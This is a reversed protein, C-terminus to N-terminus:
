NVRGPVTPQAGPVSLDLDWEGARAADAILKLLSHLLIPDVRIEVGQGQLPHMGLLTLGGELPACKVQALLVPADGLPHAVAHDDRYATQFDARELAAEHEFAVMAERAAPEPQHLARGSRAASGTLARWLLRAYRRTVWFRFESRDTTALRLLARDEHADYRLQVQHINAM